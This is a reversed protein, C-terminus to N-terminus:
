YGGGSKVCVILNSGPLFALSCDHDFVFVVMLCIICFNNKIQEFISHLTHLTTKTSKIKNEESLVM